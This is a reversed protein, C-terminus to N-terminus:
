RCFHVSLNCWITIIISVSRHQQQHRHQTMMYPCHSPPTPSQFLVYLVVIPAQTLRCCLICENELFLWVIQVLWGVLASGALQLRVLFALWVFLWGVVKYFTLLAPAQAQYALFRLEGGMLATALLLWSPFSDKWVGECVSYVRSCIFSADSRHHSSICHHDHHHHRHHHYHYYALIAVCLLTTTM